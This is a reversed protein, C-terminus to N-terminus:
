NSLLDSSGSEIEEQPQQNELIVNGLSIEIDQHIESSKRRKFISFTVNQQAEQDSQSWQYVRIALNCFFDCDIIGLIWFLILLLLFSSFMMGVTWVDVSNEFM